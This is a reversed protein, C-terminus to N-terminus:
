ARNIPSMVVNNSTCVPHVSLHWPQGETNLFSKTAAVAMKQHPHFRPSLYLHATSPRWPSRNRYTKEIEGFAEPEGEITRTYYTGHIWRITTFERSWSLTIRLLSPNTPQHLLGLFLELRNGSLETSKSNREKMIWVPKASHHQTLRAPISPLQDYSRGGALYEPIREM